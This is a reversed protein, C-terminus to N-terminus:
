SGTLLEQLVAMRPDIDVEPHNCETENLNGGCIPCLGKCTPSCVPQIPIDLLLYERFITSLDLIGTEPIALL